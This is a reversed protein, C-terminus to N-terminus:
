DSGGGWVLHGILTPDEEWPSFAGRPAESYAGDGEIWWIELVHSMGDMPLQLTADFEAAEAEKMEFAPHEGLDGIAIPEHDVLAVLLSRHVLDQCDGTWTPTLLFSLPLTGDEHLADTTLISMTGQPDVISGLSAQIKTPDVQVPDSLRPFQANGHLITFAHSGVSHGNATSVLLVGSSAGDPVDSSAVRLVGPAQRNDDLKVSNWLKPENDDLLTPVPVGNILVVFYLPADPDSILASGISLAFQIALDDDPNLWATIVTDGHRDPGFTFGLSVGNDPVDVLMPAPELESPIRFNDPRYDSLQKNCAPDLEPRRDPNSPCAVLVPCVAGGGSDDGGCAVAAAAFVLCGVILREFTM